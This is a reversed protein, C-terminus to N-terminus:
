KKRAGRKRKGSAKQPQAMKALADDIQGRTPIPIEMPKVNARHPTTRQTPEKEPM